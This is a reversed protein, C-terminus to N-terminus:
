SYKLLLKEAMEPYMKLNKIYKKSKMRKIHSEIHRATTMSPCEIELFITWDNVQSTYKNDYYKTNHRYVRQNVDLTTAGIYFKDISQSFLIYVRAAM